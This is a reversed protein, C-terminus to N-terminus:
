WLGMFLDKLEDIIMMDINLFTKRYEEIMKAYSVGGRKGYVHDLYSDTTKINTTANGKNTQTGTNTIDGTKGYELTHEYETGTGDDTIKRANTLYNGTTVGTLAGQPTDSYEDWRTNKNTDTGSDVDEGGAVSHQQLNDTRTNTREDKSDSTGDGKHDVVYDVEYLPNFSLLESNYLKNYYPMIENLRNALYFKWLGYTEAGIERVYYHKLIKRELVERYNEDFIPFNFDFIKPLALTIVGDIENYGVSESLGAETECIFRVETTYKSM